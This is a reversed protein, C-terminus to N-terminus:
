PYRGQRLNVVSYGYVMGFYLNKVHLQCILTGTQCESQNLLVILFHYVKRLVISYELTSSYELRTFM